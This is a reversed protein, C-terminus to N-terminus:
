ITSLVHGSTILRAAHLFNEAILYKPQYKKIEESAATEKGKGTLVLIPIAKINIALELDCIRDGIVFRKDYKDVTQRLFIDIMGSRPKRCNCDEEPSHTCYFFHKLVKREPDILDRCRQTVKIVSDESFLGRGVGSQNSAVIIDTNSLELLAIAATVGPLISVMEPCSLYHKDEILTGDRDAIILDPM